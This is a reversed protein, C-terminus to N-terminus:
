PPTFMSKVIQPTAVAAVHGDCFAANNYAAQHWPFFISKPDYPSVTMYGQMSRSRVVIQLPASNVGPVGDMMVITSVPAGIASLNYTPVGYLPGLDANYSYMSQTGNFSFTWGAYGNASAPLIGRRHVSCRYVPRVTELAWSAAPVGLTPILRSEWEYGNYPAPNNSYGAFYAPFFFSRNDDLYFFVAADIQRLNNKCQAGYASERASRLSPLLLAALISIIAVVVLLEILTFSHHSTQRRACGHNM